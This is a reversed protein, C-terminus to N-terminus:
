EGAELLWSQFWNATRLLRADHGRAAVMQVGMPLGNEATFAPVTVAPVGTLTWLGNFIADGTFELGEPAPGTAAPCLIADCREFIEDLGAYLVDPWDLAALYDRALIANGKNLADQTRPGLTDIHKGYRYYYRAMEAFNIRERVAAAEEFAKPLPADFVQDGLAEALEDFAAHLQPDAEDWGPPKVLAFIPTVLPNSQAISLLAPTPHPSTATDGADHGFLVESVLAADAPTRAFVGVTDLTPSQMLVGSRPIAGFSPKFGTVGCFSAPRIVSGGTQTGVALPVMGDAVAAASGSSSGGPTHALNHPNRTKGAQMFALETTVTKGMIVAGAARLREVLAADKIPVRGQDLACGNETPIKATDIVDKLAVPLGHLAGIPRGAQRHADLARAQHRAFDPDFWAWAQVEPERAEIRAICAEILDVAKIAGSALRERLACADLSLMDIKDAM